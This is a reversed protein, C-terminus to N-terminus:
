LTIVPIDRACCANISSISGVGTSLDYAVYLPVCNCFTLVTSCVATIREAKQSRLMILLGM